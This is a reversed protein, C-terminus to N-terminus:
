FSKYNCWLNDILLPRMSTQSKKLVSNLTQNYEELMLELKEKRDLAQKRKKENKDFLLGAKNRERESKACLINWVPKSDNPM